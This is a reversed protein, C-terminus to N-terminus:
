KIPSIFGIAYSLYPQTVKSDKALVFFTMDHRKPEVIRWIFSLCYIPEYFLLYGVTNLMIWAYVFHTSTQQGFLPFELKLSFYKAYKNKRCSCLEPSSWM